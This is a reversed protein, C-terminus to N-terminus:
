LPIRLGDYGALVRPVPDAALEAAVEDTTHVLVVREAGLREVGARLEDLSVHAHPNPRPSTCELVLLDAGASLRELEDCWRTDGSIAVTRGDVRLRYGLSTPHHRLPVLDYGFPGLEFGTAEEIAHELWCLEFPDAGPSFLEAYCLRCLGDLCERLGRPGRLEFRRTRRRELALCLRLFPWGATHDGHLHTVCLGEIPDLAVEFRALAAAATPGADILLAAGSAARLLLSQSGRGDTHFATGTGLLQLEGAAM